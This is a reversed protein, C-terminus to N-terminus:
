VHARGIQRSGLAAKRGAHGRRLGGAGLAAALRLGRLPIPWVLSPCRFALRDLRHSGGFSGPRGGRHADESRKKEDASPIDSRGPWTWATPFFVAPPGCSSRHRARPKGAVASEGDLVGRHSDCPRHAAPLLRESTKERIRTGRDLAGYVPFQKPRLVGADRVAREQPQELSPILLDPERAARLGESSAVGVCRYSAGM